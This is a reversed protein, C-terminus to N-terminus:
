TKVKLFDTLFVAKASKIITNSVAKATAASVKWVPLTTFHSFEV